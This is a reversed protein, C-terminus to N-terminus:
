NYYKMARNIERDQGRQKISARKDRNKKGKCIGIKMKILGKKFFLKLPIVSLGATKEAGILKDIERKNLLIKRKRIPDYSPINAPEYPSIHMSSVYPGDELVSVYSGKLNVKGARISKVESGKLMLGAVMEELVEYDFYAKKNRAISSGGSSKKQKM